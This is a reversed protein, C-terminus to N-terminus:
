IKEYLLCKYRFSFIFSMAGCSIFFLTCKIIVIIFVNTLYKNILTDLEM